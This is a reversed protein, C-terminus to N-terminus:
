FAAFETEIGPASLLRRAPGNDDAGASDRFAPLKEVERQAVRHGALIRCIQAKGRKSGTLFLTAAVRATVHCPFQVARRGCIEPEPKMGAGSM